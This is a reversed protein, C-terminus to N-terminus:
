AHTLEKQERAATQTLRRFEERTLADHTGFWRLVAEGIEANSALQGEASSAAQPQAGPPVRSPPPGGGLDSILAYLKEGEVPDMRVFEIGMGFTPQSTRVIGELKIQRGNVDLDLKMSTGNRFPSMMEIYCGGLSVENLRGSVSVVSGREVMTASGACTFRQHRRREQQTRTAEVPKASDRDIAAYDRHVVENIDPAPVVYHDPEIPPPSLMPPLHDAFLSQAGEVLRLGALGDAATGADGIWAVRYRAHRGKYQVEIPDGVARLCRVGRLQVGNAGIDVTTASQTFRNGNGDAGSINVALAIRYRKHQRRGMNRAVRRAYDDECNAYANQFPVTLNRQIIKTTGTGNQATDSLSGRRYECNRVAGLQVLVLEARVRM